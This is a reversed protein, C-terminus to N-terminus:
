QEVIVLLTLKVQVVLSFTISVKEDISVVAM